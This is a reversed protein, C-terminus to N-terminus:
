QLGNVIGKVKVVLVSVMDFSEGDRFVRMLAGNARGPATLAGFFILDTYSLM